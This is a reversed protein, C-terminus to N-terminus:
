SWVNNLWDRLSSDEWYIDEGKTVAYPIFDIINKCIIVADSGEASLVQWELTESGNSLDNDQEYSGFRVVDGKKLPTFTTLTYVIFILVAFIYM